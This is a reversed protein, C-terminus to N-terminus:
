PFSFALSGDVFALFSRIGAQVELKYSGGAAEAANFKKSSMAVINETTPYTIASGPEYQYLVAGWARTSADWVVHTVKNVDFSNLRPVASVVRQILRFTAYLEDSWAFDKDKRQQHALVADHLPAVLEAFNFIFKSLYQLFCLFSNVNKVLRPPVFQKVFSLKEPDAASWGPGQVQGVTRISLGNIVCKAIKIRYGAATLTRIVICMQEVHKSLTKDSARIDDVYPSILSPKTVVAALAPELVSQCHAGANLLGYVVARYRYFRGKWVFALYKQSEPAVPHQMFFSELDLASQYSYDSPLQVATLPVMRGCPVTLKNLEMAGLCARFKTSGDPQMQAAVVHPSTCPPVEGQEMPAIVGLALLKELAKNLAAEKDAGLRYQAQHRLKEEGGPVLQITHVANPLTCMSGEPCLKNNELLLSMIQARAAKDADTMRLETTAPSKAMAPFISKDFQRLQGLQTTHMAQVGLVTMGLDVDTGILLPCSREPEAPKDVVIVMVKPILVQRAGHRLIIPTTAFSANCAVGRFDKVQHSSEEYKIGLMDAFFSYLLTRSCESDFVAHLAWIKASPVHVIELATVASAKPYAKSFDLRRMEFKSFEDFSVPTSPYRHRVVAADSGVSTTPMEIPKLDFAGDGDDVLAAELNERISQQM